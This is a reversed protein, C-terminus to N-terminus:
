EGAKPKLENSQVVGEDTKVVQAKADESFGVNGIVRPPKSSQSVQIAVGQFGHIENNMVDVASGAANIAQKYDITKNNLMRITSGKWAWVARNPKNHESGDFTNNLLTVEGQVLVGAVGGGKITNGILTAKANGRIALLPPMGGKREFANGAILANGGGPMGLAVMKNDMCRNRIVISEAKTELGIGASANRQLVNGIIVPSAGDRAGIGAAGNDHSRNEIIFPKAGHQSGIGALQNHHCTNNRIIPQAEEDTGIGAMANEYCENHEIIPQTEKGTRTGIGARRNKYCKNHRVTPCAGESIGIGARINNYCVNNVVYPHANDHGIGAYYNEFCTNGDIMATSGNMSGIGGGMNRYCTNATIRPSTRKGKVGAVAIGTSGVHHVINYRVDCSIGTIGVGPTGFHGIHEHEQENGQTKYHHQWAKDDYEDAATVTFGDLIADAAMTVVPGGNHQSEGEKKHQKPGEIITQEARQLGLKGKTNDGVSQLLIREKLKIREKYTGASVLVRDGPQAADIAAQITPHDQPVRLDAAFTVPSCVVIAFLTLSINKM